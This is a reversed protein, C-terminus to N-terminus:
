KLSAYYAALNDIDTDTLGAVMPAMSPDKREGSKFAKIQKVLYAEKQGALNPWLPSASIGAIGHCAGCIASKAKGAEIDGALSSTSCLLSLVFLKTKKM